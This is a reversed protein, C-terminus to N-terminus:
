GVAMRVVFWGCGITALAGVVVAFWARGRGHIGTRRSERLGLLGLALAVPGLAWIFLAVLAVYGAAISWGSRGTPLLWHVPDSPSEGFPRVAPVVGAHSVHGQPAHQAAATTHETWGAGDWWRLLGPTEDHYWGASPSADSTSTM